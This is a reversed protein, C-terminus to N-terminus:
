CLAVAKELVFIDLVLPYPYEHLVKAAIDSVTVTENKPHVIIAPRRRASPGKNIIIAQGLMREVAEAAACFLKDCGGIADVAFISNNKGVASM